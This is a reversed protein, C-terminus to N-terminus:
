GFAIARVQDLGETQIATLTASGTPAPAGLDWDSNCGWGWVTGDVRLVLSHCATTAVAVVQDLGARSATPTANQTARTPAPTMPLTAGLVLSLVLVSLPSRLM